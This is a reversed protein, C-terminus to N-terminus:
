TIGHNLRMRLHPNGRPELWNSTMQSLQKPEQLNGPIEVTIPEPQLYGPYGPAMPEVGKYMWPGRAGGIQMDLPWIRM